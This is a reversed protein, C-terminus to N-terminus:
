GVKMRRSVLMAEVTINVRKNFIGDLTSRAQYIVKVAPRAAQLAPPVMNEAVLVKRCIWAAM